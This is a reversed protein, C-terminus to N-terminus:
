ATIAPSFTAVITGPTASTDTAAATTAQNISLVYPAQDIQNGAADFMTFTYVVGAALFLQQSIGAANSIEGRSNLPIPNPLPTAGASDQYTPFNVGGVQTQVTGGVNPAGANNFFQLIPVPAALVATAM